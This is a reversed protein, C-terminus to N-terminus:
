GDAWGVTEGTKVAQTWKCLHKSATCAGAQVLVQSHLFTGARQNCNTAGQCGKDSSTGVVARKSHHATTSPRLDPKPVSKRCADHMWEHVGAREQM